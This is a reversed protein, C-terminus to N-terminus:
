NFGRKKLINENNLYCIEDPCDTIININYIDEGLEKKLSNYTANSSVTWIFIEKNKHTLNSVLDKTILNEKIGLMDYNKENKKLDKLNSILIQYKYQNFKKKMKNLKSFNNSQIIIKSKDYDNLLNNIKEIFENENEKSFKIDLILYKKNNYNNLVDNLKIFNEEKDKKENFREFNLLGDKQLLLNKFALLNYISKCKNKYKLIDYSNQNNISKGEIKNDHSLVIEGDLTYRIDIEVGDSCESKFGETISKLSNDIEKSSFGRHSIITGYHNEGCLVHDNVNNKFNIKNYTLLSLVTTSIICAHFVRRKINIKM